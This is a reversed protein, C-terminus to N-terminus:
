EVGEQPGGALANLDRLGELIEERSFGAQELEDDGYSQLEGYFWLGTELMEPTPSPGLREFLLNEAENIEGRRLMSELTKHLLGAENVTNDERVTEIDAPRKQFLVTGLVRAMQEIQDM